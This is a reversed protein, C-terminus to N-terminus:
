SPFAGGWSGLPRSFCEFAKTQALGEGIRPAGAMFIILLFNVRQVDKTKLLGIKPLAVMLGVGLAIVAPDTKHWLDTAWLGVALLLWALTKKEPVTWPGM